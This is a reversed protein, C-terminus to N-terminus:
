RPLTVTPVEDTAGYSSEGPSLNDGRIDGDGVIMPRSGEWDMQGLKDLAWSAPSWKAYNWADTAAQLATYKNNKFYKVFKLPFSLPTTHKGAHGLAVKAGAIRVIEKVAPGNYCAATYFMRFKGRLAALRRAFDAVTVLNASPADSLFPYDQDGRFVFGGPAGHTFVMVDVVKAKAAMAAAANEVVGSNLVQDGTIFTVFDYEYLWPRSRIPLTQAFESVSGGKTDNVVLILGQGGYSGAHVSHASAVFGLSLLAFLSVFKNM